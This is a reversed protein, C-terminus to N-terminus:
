KKVTFIPLKDLNQDFGDSDMGIYSKQTRKLSDKKNINADYPFMYTYFHHIFTKRKNTLCWKWVKNGANVM